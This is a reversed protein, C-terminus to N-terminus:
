GPLKQAGADLRLGFAELCLEGRVGAAALPAPIPPAYSGDSRNVVEAVWGSYRLAKKEMKDIEYVNIGFLRGECWKPVDDQTLKDRIQDLDQPELFLCIIFFSRRSQQNCLEEVIQLILNKTM